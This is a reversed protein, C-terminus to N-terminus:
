PINEGPRLDCHFAAVRSIVLRVHPVDCHSMAGDIWHATHGHAYTVGCTSHSDTSCLIIKTCTGTALSKRYIAVCSVLGSLEGMM